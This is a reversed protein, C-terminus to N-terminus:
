ANVDIEAAKADEPIDPKDTAEIPEGVLSYLELFMLMLANYSSEEGPEPAAFEIGNRNMWTILTAANKGDVVPNFRSTLEIARGPNERFFALEKHKQELFQDARLQRRLETKDKSLRFIEPAFTRYFEQSLSAFAYDLENIIRLQTKPTTTRGLDESLTEVTARFPDFYPDLFYGPWEFAIPKPEDLRFILSGQGRSSTKVQLHHLMEPNLNWRAHNSEKGHLDEIRHGYGLPTGVFRDLLFNLNAVNQGGGREPHKKISEYMRRVGEERFRLIQDARAQYLEKKRMQGLMSENRREYYTKVHKKWNDLELDVARAVETRAMAAKILFEGEGELYEGMADVFDSAATVRHDIINTRSGFDVVDVDSKSDDQAPLTPMGIMVTFIIVCFLLGAYNPFEKSSM